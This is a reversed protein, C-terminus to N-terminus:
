LAVAIQTRSAVIQGQPREPVQAIFSMSACHGFDGRRLGALLAELVLKMDCAVVRASESQKHATIAAGSEDFQPPAWRLCYISLVARFSMTGSSMDTIPLASGIEGFGPNAEISDCEVILSPRAEFEAENDSIFSREEGDGDDDVFPRGAEAFAARLVSLIECAAEYWNM